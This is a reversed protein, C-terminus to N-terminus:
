VDFARQAVFIAHIFPSRFIASGAMRIHVHALEAFVARLAVGRLSPFRNMEIVVQCTEFQGTRVSRRLTFGTM